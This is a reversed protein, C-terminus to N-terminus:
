KSLPRQALIEEILYHPSIWESTIQCRYNTLKTIRNIVDLIDKKFIPEHHAIRNRLKRIKELDNFISERMTSITQNAPLNPFQSYLHQNWFQQDYKSVFMQQWFNFNLEPIVKSTRHRISQKERASTLENRYHKNLTLELRRQWPWHEGFETEFTDAVVNRIIVECIHMPTILAGSVKSNWLYLELAKDISGMEKIYTVMRPHSLTKVIHSHSM